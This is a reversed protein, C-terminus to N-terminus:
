RREQRTIARFEFMRHKVQRGHGNPNPHAM